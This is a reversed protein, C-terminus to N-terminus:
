PVTVAIRYTNHYTGSYVLDGRRGFQYLNAVTANAAAVNPVITWSNCSGNSASYCTVAALGTGPFKPSMALKYKTGSYSFDVGLSCNGYTVGPAISMLPIQNGSADFCQSFLEVNASYYGDPAPIGQSALTLYITRLTQNGIYLQWAGNVWVQSKIGGMSGMKPTATYIAAGSSNYDDSRLLLPGQADTDYIISTANVSSPQNPAATQCPSSPLLVTWM